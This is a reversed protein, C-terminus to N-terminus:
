PIPRPKDVPGYGFYWGDDTYVWRTTPEAPPNPPVPPEGGNTLKEVIATFPPLESGVPTIRFLEAAMDCRRLMQQVERSRRQVFPVPVTDGIVGSPFTLCATRRM